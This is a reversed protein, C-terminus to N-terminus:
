DEYHTGWKRKPPEFGEHCYGYKQYNEWKSMEKVQKEQGKGRAEPQDGDKINNFHTLAKGRDWYDWKYTKWPREIRVQYQPRVGEARELFVYIGVRSEVEFELIEDGKIM